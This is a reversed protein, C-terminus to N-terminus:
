LKFDLKGSTIPEPITPVGMQYPQYPSTVVPQPIASPFTPLMPAYPNVLQGPGPAPAIPEPMAPAYPNVMQMMQPAPAAVMGFGPTPMVPVTAVPVPTTAVPQSVPAPTSIDERIPLGGPAHNSVVLKNPADITAKATFWAFMRVYTELNDLHKKFEEGRLDYGIMKAWPDILNIVQSMVHLKADLEPVSLITAHYRYANLTTEDTKLKFLNRMLNRVAVWSKKRLKYMTEAEDSFLLTQAEAVKTKKNYFIRFYDAANINKLESVTLKDCSESVDTLLQLIDYNETEKSVSLEVVNVIIERIINALIMIRSNYFWNFAPNSGEIMKLPNFIFNNEDKIMGSHLIQVPKNTDGDPITHASGDEELIVMNSDLRNVGGFTVLMEIFAQVDDNTLQNM